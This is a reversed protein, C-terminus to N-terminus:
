TARGGTLEREVREALEALVSEDERWPPFTVVSVAQDTRAQRVALELDLRISIPGLPYVGPVVAIRECGLAALHRVASGVDPSAWEMWAIRVNNEAIGNEILRMKMRNLFATEDEDMVQNRRARSEPQGHGVLVVGTAGPGELMTLVRHALADVLRDSDGLTDTYTITVGSEDLRMADLDKKAHAMHLPSAVGLEAVVIRRHGQVAAELARAALAREGSCTAFDVRGVVEGPLMGELKEAISSLQSQAPSTGGIARYRTKQAFFLFPLTGMSPELLEEDALSRLMGGTAVPDYKPPETCSVVIVAAMSSGAQPLDPVQPRSDPGHIRELLSSALSWGGIAGALMFALAYLVADLRSYADAIMVVSFASLSFALLGILATVPEANQRVILVGVFSAGSILASLV